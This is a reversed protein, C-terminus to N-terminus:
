GMFGFDRLVRLAADSVEERAQDTFQWRPDKRLQRQFDFLTMPKEPGIASRLTTDDISIAAEPLQLTNAMLRKYPAYITDLDVGSDVLKALNDPLGVAATKRILNKFIDIDEGNEVRKIWGTVVDTGFNKSLDLGNALATKALSQTTLTRAAAKSEKYEPLKRIKDNLFTDRDFGGTYETVLVGGVKKQTAKQISSAKKERAILEDSYKKLEEPTPLRGLEAQFRAEVKAAAESPTSISVTGTPVGPGGTGAGLAATENIKDQLFQGWSVEEGWLISRAQNAALASQYAQVLQDSYVDVIPGKYFGASKLAEALERRDKGSIKRIYQGAGNILGVYDTPGATVEQEGVVADKKPAKPKPAYKGTGNIRDNLDAARAQLVANNPQSQMLANVEELEQRAKAVDTSKAKARITKKNAEFYAGRAAEVSSLNDRASNFEGQAREIRKQIADKQDDSLRGGAAALAAKQKNLEASAATFKKRAAKVASDDDLFSKLTVEAM